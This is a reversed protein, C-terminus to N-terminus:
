STPRGDTESRKGQSAAESGPPALVRMNFGFWPCGNFRRLRGSDGDGFNGDVRFGSEPMNFVFKKGRSTITGRYGLQVKGDPLLRNIRYHRERGDTSNSPTEREAGHAEVMLGCRLSCEASCTKGPLQVNDTVVIENHEVQLTVDLDHPITEASVVCLATSVM